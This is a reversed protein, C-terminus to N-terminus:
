AAVAARGGLFPFGRRGVSRRRAGCLPRREAEVIRCLDPLIGDSESANAVSWDCSRCLRRFINSEGAASLKEPMTVADVDACRALDSVVASLMAQGERRLSEPVDPCAACCYEWVFVRM